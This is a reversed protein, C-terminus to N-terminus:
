LGTNPAEVRGQNGGYKPKDFVYVTNKAAKVDADFDDSWVTGDDFAVKAVSCIIKEDEASGQFDTRFTPKELARGLIHGDSMLDVKTGGAYSGEVSLDLSGAKDIEDFDSKFDFRFRIAKATKTGVNKIRVGALLTGRFHADFSSTDLIGFCYTLQIPAEPQPLAEATLIKAKTSNDNDALASGSLAAVLAAAVLFPRSIM